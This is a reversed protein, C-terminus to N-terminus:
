APASASLPVLQRYLDEYLGAAQDWSFQAAMANQQLAAWRPADRYCACARRVAEVLAPVTVPRFVFGTGARQPDAAEDTVTDALGGASRVLPLTGYRLGYLQTLGCPEFRSPVVILDAGAMIRHALGEDYGLRVAVQTAHSAAAQRFAQELWPEGSGLVVLQAGANLLAELGGLLLDLGKQETLRSVVGFLPAAADAALGFERQLAAKCAAKGALKAPGYPAAILADRAPDWITYDVGNLIGSLAAGRQRIVGDLGCGQESQCIERAYTPSVTTIRDAYVLAGKMFSVQSHFELAGPAFMAQPLGLSSFCAADFLGQYALNHVTFVTAPRPGPRVALYVPALAAHWDHAHVVQPQWDRDLGGAALQAATWGLLGFRLHNDSWGSGDPAQYPNGPRDYLFPAEIVYATLGSDSLQGRRLTVRGAGFANGLECVVTQRVVGALIAPLGPLLLRVDLGRAQLAPPLAATVDALGGTKLLPYIEAAVHLCRLM